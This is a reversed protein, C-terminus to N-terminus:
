HPVALSTGVPSEHREALARGDPRTRGCPELEVRRRAAHPRDAAALVDYLAATQRKPGIKADPHREDDIMQYEHGIASPLDEMVFYKVGSNGVLSIKWDWALEFQDYSDTSISDQEGHTDKGDKKPLTLM